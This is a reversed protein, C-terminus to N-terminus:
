PVSGSDLQKRIKLNIYKRYRELLDQMDRHTVLVLKARYGRVEKEIQTLVASDLINTVAFTIERSDSRFPFCKRDLILSASFKMVLNWDVYLNALRVFPIKHQESLVQALQEETLVKEQLLINGLFDRAVAQKKLAGQLTAEDIWGKAM